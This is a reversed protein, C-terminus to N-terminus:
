ASAHLASSVHAKHTSVEVDMPDVSNERVTQDVHTPSVGGIRHVHTHATRVHAVTVVMGM